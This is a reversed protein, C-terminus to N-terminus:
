WGFSEWWGQKKNLEGNDLDELSIPNEWCMLKRIFWLVKNM